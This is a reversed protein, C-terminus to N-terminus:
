RVIIVGVLAVAWMLLVGPIAFRLWRGYSVGAKALMAFLAGNTPNVTDAMVAGAQYALVAADRSFGLLDALPAMIPMTLVAQGSTSSVPIHLLAHVPIMASAAALPPLQGLPAVAGAVITDIVRGDALVLGIARAVGVLLAAGLMGEMGLIFRRTTEGASLRQLAGVAFGGVLFLGSLENIGWGLRLVGWVYALIPLVVVALALADRRTPPDTAQIELHPRIDDRRTCALTYTIWVAVGAVLLSVRLGGASLPPLEAVRLAIGAGFPNVPSFTAGVMAAGMSMALATVAGFGLGCSLIVLVPMLAIFEEHMHEAAGFAAFVVALVVLVVRPRRTRGVLAGLLRGLAGTGDLLAFAGGVFLITVIVEGGAVIGRPVAVLAALVGVPAAAVSTYSGPVTIRAGTVPDERREYEGAPLVWTLAAAIVVGGLLLLFPHPLRLRLRM